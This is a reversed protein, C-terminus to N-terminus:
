IGERLCSEVESATAKAISQEALAIAQPLTLGTILKKVGPVSSIGMSLKRIGLGILAAVAPPDGGMEGCVSVPKGAGNFVSVVQKIMRFMAPHYCQYYKSVAPNMRDVATLYQCLDNTGISAFDVENVAIDAVMAISPIEIMIGVPVDAKFEIGEQALCNKVDDIVAKAARIDDLSAVMPLMLWLNGYCAARLVARIQTKFLPLEEFCLRLARLGLFPNEEKPLQLSGLQKDGGVDLTRLVVPREGFELAVKRYALFQEEETPLILSNMYLFETRFLGVGDTYLSGSLEDPAASEINLSVEIRVGDKTVPEVSLYKSIERAKIMYEERKDRYQKYALDDPSTYLAGELADVIVPEGNRLQAMINPIGLIAPIGYSRAIIASHSTSGGVETIIALVKSRDLSATDSPFLNHAVLIIEKELSKLSQVAAGFWIRHLRAKIDQLDNARERIREDKGRSLIRIYKSYTKEIAWGPSLLSNAILKKIEANMATDFLIDIQAEFIKAKDVEDNLMLEDRIATLETRAKELLNSYQEMAAATASENPPITKESIEPASPSYLFVEGMAIGPSVPNGKYQM